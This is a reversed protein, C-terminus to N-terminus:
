VGLGLVSERLENMIEPVEIRFEIGSYMIVAAKTFCKLDRYRLHYFCDKHFSTIHLNKKCIMYFSM